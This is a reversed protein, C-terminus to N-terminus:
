WGLQKNFTVGDYYDGQYAIKGDKVRILTVGKFNLKQGTAKQSASWNGTNTGSFTWEFAISDPAVVPESRMEWKADPVATLFVKIVNDTAAQRGRQPEGVSVDLYVGDDAFYSGAKDADHANWAAMYDDVVTRADSTAPVPAAPPPAPVAEPVVSAAPTAPAQAQRQCAALPLLILALLVTRTNM